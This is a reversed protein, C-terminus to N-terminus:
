GIIEELKAKVMDAHGKAKVKPWIYAIKGRPDILVTSRVVGYYERGYNKKLQWAGYAEIVQHGPDSLLTIGLEKKGIFNYHSKVSDPSVGLIVANMKELEEKLATFEVAELTCGSTNDKPYFYLIVWKGEFQKLSINEGAQNELSFDPAKDGINM